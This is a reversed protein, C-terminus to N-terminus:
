RGTEEEAAHFTWMSVTAALGGGEHRRGSTSRPFTWGAACVFRSEEIARSLQRARGDVLSRWRGRPRAASPDRYPRRAGPAM